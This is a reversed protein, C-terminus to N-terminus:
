RMIIIIEIFIIKRGNEPREGGFSEVKAFKGMLSLSHARERQPTSDLRRRVWYHGKSSSSLQDSSARTREGALFLYDRLIEGDGMYLPELSPSLWSAGCLFIGGAEEISQTRFRRRKMPFPSPSPDSAMIPGNEGREREATKARIKRNIKCLKKLALNRSAHM